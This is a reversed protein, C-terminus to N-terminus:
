TIMKNGRMVQDRSMTHIDNPCFQHQDSNPSLPNIRAEYESMVSMMSVKLNSSLSSIQRLSKERIRWFYVGRFAVNYKKACNNKNFSTQSEWDCM